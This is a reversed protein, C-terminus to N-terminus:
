HSRQLWDFSFLWVHFCLELSPVSNRAVWWHFQSDIFFQQTFYSYLSTGKYIEHFSSSFGPPWNGDPNLAMRLWTWILDFSNELWQLFLRLHTMALATVRKKNLNSGGPTFLKKRSSYNCTSVIASKAVKQKITAMAAPLIMCYVKYLNLTHFQAQIKWTPQHLSKFVSTKSLFITGRQLM